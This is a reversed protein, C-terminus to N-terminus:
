FDERTIGLKRLKSNLMSHAETGPTSSSGQRRWHRRPNGRAGAPHARTGGWELTGTQEHEATPQTGLDVQEEGPEASAQLEALPVRLVPGRTLIVAREILNELERINGPWPWRTLAELADPPISEIRKNMRQAHRQAFYRVLIPIDERRERLPPVTIPFVKLRHDLDSRFRHEKVMKGLDQTPIQLWACM